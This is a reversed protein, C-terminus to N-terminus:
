QDGGLPKVMLSYWLFSSRKNYGPTAYLAGRLYAGAKGAILILGPDLTIFSKRGYNVFTQLSSSHKYTALREM